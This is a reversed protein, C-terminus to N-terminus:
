PRKPISVLQKVLVFEDGSSKYSGHLVVQALSGEELIKLDTQIAFGYNIKDGREIKDQMNIDKGLCFAIAVKEGAKYLSAFESGGRLGTIRHTFAQSTIDRGNQILTINLSGFKGNEPYDGVHSSKRIWVDRGPTFEVTLLLENEIWRFRVEPEEAKLSPLFAYLLCLTILCSEIFRLKLFYLRPSRTM